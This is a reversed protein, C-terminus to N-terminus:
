HVLVSMGPRAGAIPRAPRARVEFTRVDFGAGGRTARWTAFDPLVDDLPQVWGENIATEAPVNQPLAFVDPASGNRIGLPVVQNVQDWGSGDYQTTVEPFQEGFADIVASIFVSKLDGSDMWLLQASDSAEPDYAFEFDGAAEDPAPGDSGGTEVSCAALGGVMLATAGLLSRRRLLSRPATATM